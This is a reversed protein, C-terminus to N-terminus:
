SKKWFRNDESDDDDKLSEMMRDFESVEGNTMDRIQGSRGDWMYDMKCTGGMNNKVIAISAYKDNEETEPDFGPRWLTMIARCDQEIVSAGKVKRMSLLPNRADGASKQPQLLVFLCLNYERALDALRSATHGSLATADTFPGRIKELYDVVVLRPYEGYLAYHTKIDSEIDDITTGSRYNISLNEYDESVKDFAKMLEKTPTNTELMSLIQEFSLNVYNQVLRAIQFNETMDLCEYLVREGKMSTTKMFNNSFTTKGSGPAGLLGVLMGSTFVIKDDLSELGFMIRNKSFESAFRKFREISQDINTLNRNGDSDEKLNFREATVKLINTEKESYTGGRWKDSYVHCVIEKWLRQDNYEECSNRKAQLEAVGKLMRWAIEKPYGNSKYTAALIMFATNRNGELKGEGKQFFGEQLAFKTSSMWSPKRSLELRDEYIINDELQKKEKVTTTKVENIYSPLKTCVSWSDFTDYFGEINKSYNKPDAEEKIKDISYEALQSDTLPIKYLKTKNHKTLPVRFLRQEDSVSSDFTELDKALNSIINEFEKRSFRNDTEIEVSFGKNGSFCIQVEDRNFGKSTLRSVLELTDQRAVEPNEKHDFDFVIKNTKIDETSAVSFKAKLYDAHKDTIKKTRKALNIKSYVEKTIDLIKEPDYKIDLETCVDKLGSVFKDYHEQKYTYISEYYDKSKGYQNIVDDINITSPFLAYNWFERSIRKYEM